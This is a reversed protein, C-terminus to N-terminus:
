AIFKGDAWDPQIVADIGIRAFVFIDAREMETKTESKLKTM